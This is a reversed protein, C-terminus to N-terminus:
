IARAAVTWSSVPTVMVGRLRHGSHAAALVEAAQRCGWSRGRLAVIARPELM